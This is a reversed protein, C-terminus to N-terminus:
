SLIVTKGIFLICDDDNADVIAVSDLEMLKTLTYEDCEM